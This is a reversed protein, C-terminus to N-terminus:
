VRKLRMDRAHTDETLTLTLNMKFSIRTIRSIQLKTTVKIPKLLILASQQNKDVSFLETKIITKKKKM